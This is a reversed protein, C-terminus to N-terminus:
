AEEATHIGDRWDDVFALELTEVRLLASKWTVLGVANTLGTM